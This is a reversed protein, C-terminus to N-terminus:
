PGGAFKKQSPYNVRDVHRDGQWWMAGIAEPIDQCLDRCGLFADTDIFPVEAKALEAAEALEARPQEREWSQAAEKALHLFVEAM